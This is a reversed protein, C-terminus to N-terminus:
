LSELHDRSAEAKGPNEEKPSTQSFKGLERVALDMETKVANRGSSKALYLAHDARMIASSLDDDRRLEAVGFCATWRAEGKASSIISASVACRIREALEAAELLDTGPLLVVFEEGGIRSVTASRGVIASMQRATSAIVEDGVAHGHSDNIAKFHDIDAVILATPLDSPARMLRQGAVELGRRNLLGTLPDTLSREQLDEFIDRSLVVLLVMGTTVAAAAVVLHLSVLLLEESHTEATLEGGVLVALVIPRAFCLVCSTLHVSFLLTDLFRKRYGRMAAIGFCLIVGCGFNASLSRMWPWDAALLSAYIGLHCILIGVLLRWPAPGRYHRWIGCVLLLSTIAYLAAVATRVIIDESAQFVMDAVFALSGVVYSSAFVLAARSERMRDICVFGGAFILFVLPNLLQFYWDMEM